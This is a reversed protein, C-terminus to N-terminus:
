AMECGIHSKKVFMLSIDDGENEDYEVNEIWEKMKLILKKLRM